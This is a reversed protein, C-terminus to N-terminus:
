RRRLKDIGGAVHGRAHFAIPRIPRGVSRRRTRADGGAIRQARRQGGRRSDFQRSNAHAFPRPFHDSNDLLLLESRRRARLTLRGAASSVAASRRSAAISLRPKASPGSPSVKISAPASRRPPTSAPRRMASIQRPPRPVHPEKRIVCDGRQGQVIAHPEAAAPSQTDPSGIRPSSSVCPPALAGEVREAGARRARQRLLLGNEFVDPIAIFGIDGREDDFSAARRRGLDHFSNRAIAPERWRSQRHNVRRRLTQGAARLHDRPHQFHRQVLRMRQFKRELADDVADAGRREARRM